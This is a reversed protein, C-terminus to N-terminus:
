GRASKLPEVTKDRPGTRAWGDRGEQRHMAPAWGPRAFVLQVASIDREDFGAECYALYFAWLRHFREDLGMSPLQEAALDLNARWRRLTEAYHLGIDDLDTMALDTSAASAALLAEVSPLCGGPFIVEKIFDAHAKAQDFRQGPIVIAQMAMRGAPTLLRQCVEFFTAYERWDVAEIMEVSVIADYPGEAAHPALRGKGSGLERYDRDLVTVRDALGAAAVRDRAYEYQRDSITTTTVRCGHRQAAHVAFGGWGTGIELVHDRETLGIRDCLRDLKHVSADRLSMAPADFIASSYMMTEDLLREFFDNGLDYHARIDDRDRVLSPPRRRRIPDAVRGTVGRVSRLVPDARRVNRDLVRLLATLDDTTWWGDAYSHGLGVSRGTVIRRYTRPDRVRVTAHLPARGYRDPETQGFTHIRDGEVLTIRGGVVCDLARLVASRAVSDFTPRNM